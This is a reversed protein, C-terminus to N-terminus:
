SIDTTTLNVMSAIIAYVLLYDVVIIDTKIPHSSKFIMLYQNFVWPKMM